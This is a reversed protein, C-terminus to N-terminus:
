GAQPSLWGGAQTWDGFPGEARTGHRDLRLWGGRRKGAQWDPLVWRINGAADLHRSPRHTHGHIIVTTRSEEFAKRIANSNVDMIAEPKGRKAAESGSRMKHIRELREGPRLALFRDQWGPDRVESRFRQYDLDDTCWADGHSLLVRIGFAEIACPDPLLEAGVEALFGSGLLLDRNGHMFFVQPASAARNRWARLAAVFALRGPPELDDGAWFEFLDGLVFLHTCPVMLGHALAPLFGSPDSDAAATEPLHIDSLFVATDSGALSLKM